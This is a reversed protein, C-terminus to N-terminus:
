LNKLTNHTNVCENNMRQVSANMTGRGDFEHLEHLENNFGGLSLEYDYSSLSLLYGETM